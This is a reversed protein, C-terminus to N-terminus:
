ERSAGHTAGVVVGVGARGGGFLTLGDLLPVAFPGDGAVLQSADGMEIAQPATYVNRPVLNTETTKITNPGFRALRDSAEASSLGREDADLRSQIDALNLAHWPRTTSPDVDEASTTM